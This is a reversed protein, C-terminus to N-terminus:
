VCINRAYMCYIRLERMCRVDVVMPSKGGRRLIVMIIGGDISQEEVEGTKKM